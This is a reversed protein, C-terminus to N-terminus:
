ATFIFVSQVGALEATGNSSAQTPFLTEIPQPTILSQSAAKVLSCILPFTQQASQITLPAKARFSGASNPSFAALENVVEYNTRSGWLLRTILERVEHRFIRASRVLNVLLSSRKLLEKPAIAM